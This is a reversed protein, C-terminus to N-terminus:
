LLTMKAVSHYRFPIWGTDNTWGALYERCFSAPGYSACAKKFDKILNMDLGNYTNNGNMNFMIPFLLRLEHPWPPIPIRAALSTDNKRGLSKDPRMHLNSMEEKINRREPHENWDKDEPPPPCLDDTERPPAMAIAPAVLSLPKNETEESVTFGHNFCRKSEKNIKEMDGGDLEYEHFFAVMDKELNEERREGGLILIVSKVLAWIIWFHAPIKKGQRYANEVNKVHKSGVKKM